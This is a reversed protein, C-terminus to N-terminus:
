LSLLFFWRFHLFHLLSVVDVALPISHPHTNNNNGLTANKPRISDLFISGSNLILKKKEVDFINLESWGYKVFLLPEGLNTSWRCLGCGM